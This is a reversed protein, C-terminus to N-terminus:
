RSHNDTILFCNGQKKQIFYFYYSNSYLLIVCINKIYLM